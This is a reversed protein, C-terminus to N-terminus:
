IMNKPMGGQKGHAVIIAKLAKEAAQQCHYCIINLPKPYFTMYLHKSAELDTKSFDLWEKVEPQM